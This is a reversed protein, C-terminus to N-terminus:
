LISSQLVLNLNIKAETISQRLSAIDNSQLTIKLASWTRRRRSDSNLHLSASRIKRDFALIKHRCDKFVLKTTEDLKIESVTKKSQELIAALLEADKFLAEVNAPANRVSKAFEVLKVVSECLQLIAVVSAAGSLGDM